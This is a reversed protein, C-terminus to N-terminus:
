PKDSWENVVCKRKGSNLVPIEKIYEIRIAANDGLSERLDQLVEREASFANDDKLSLRLAYEKEGRQIFQWQMIQLYNKLTRSIFSPHIPQGETNYIIDRMRGYLASFYPIGEASHKVIGVDGTDYRILPLAYNTLDTLVIRGLEGDSAPQDSNMQLLEFIYGSRNMHFVDQWRPLEQALIGCEENAYQSVISAQPFAKAMAQRTTETLAEATSILVRLSPLEIHNQLVYQAIFDYSSAYARICKVSKKRVIACLDALSDENLLSCNFPTINEKFSQLRGKSQWRNWIRLHLLADHSNFGVEEGFYKLEALRRNRKRTDQAVAFPTGTSGSTKQVHYRCGRKQHPNREEPVLMGDMHNRIINKDVVPFDVLERGRYERYFPCNTVAHELLAALENEVSAGYRQVARIRRYERRIPSGHLFDNIWFFNRLLYAKVSM